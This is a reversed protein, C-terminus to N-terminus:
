RRGRRGRGRDCLFLKRRRCTAARVGVHRATGSGLAAFLLTGLGVMVDWALHVTNVQPTTPREDAPFADLGQIVTSTGDIPDSLISAFGPIPIGGSM